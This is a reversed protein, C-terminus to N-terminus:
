RHIERTYRDTRRARLRQRLVSIFLLALGVVPLALLLKVEVSVWPRVFFVTIGYLALATAGVVLVFWGTRREIRNYITDLFRDWVEEPPDSLSCAADTGTKLRELAELERRMAPSEALMAELEQRQNPSLEGDLYGSLLAEQEEAYETM